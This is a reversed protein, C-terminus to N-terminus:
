NAESLRYFRKVPTEQLIMESIGAANLRCLSMLEDRSGRADFVEPMGRTQIKALNNASGAVLGLIMEGVGGTQVGDEVVTASEYRSLLDQYFASDFPKIFRLNYVDAAIGKEALRGAAAMAERLLGGTTLILHDGGAKKLFAGRGEEIPPCAETYTDDPVYCSAKPYRIASPGDLSLCYSVMLRLEEENSPSLITIGPVSRLLAMDYSGQHTEGDGGVFGARDIGIIVPLRQLAVDHIIQDISRQLFTSYIAVAPRMGSLALGAAFTVAHQETIGVDFFREPFREHFRALGTGHSMAATVAVVKPDKEASKILSDSFAASFSLASTKEVKGDLV